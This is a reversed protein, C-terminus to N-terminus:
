LTENDDELAICTRAFCDLYLQNRFPHKMIGFIRLVENFELACFLVNSNESDAFRPALCPMVKLNRNTHRLASLRIIANFFDM